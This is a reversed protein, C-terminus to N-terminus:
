PKTAVLQRWGSGGHDVVFGADLLKREVFRVKDDGIIPPHVEIAVKRITQFDIGQIIDHEGGEIDMILFTPKVRAIVENLSRVPVSVQEADSKPRFMSSGWLDKTVFFDAQGDRDGLICIELKPHLNNLDYNRRIHPELAPNAEFAFVRDAGIMKACFLSVFGIGAGLELVVDDPKLLRRIGTVETREYRGNLINHIVAPSLYDDIAIKVGAHNVVRANTAKRTTLLVFERM